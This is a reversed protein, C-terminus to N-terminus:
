DQVRRVWGLLYKRRATQEALDAYRRLAWLRLHAEVLSPVPHRNAADVTRPGLWGDVDVPCGADCLAHQLLRHAWSPGMNVALDMVRAALSPDQLRHYGHEEWWDRRYIERAQEETLGAIDIDPYSRKSIGYKTEGGPDDPDHVYGGEHALVLDVAAQFPDM